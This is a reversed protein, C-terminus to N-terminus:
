TFYNKKDYFKKLNIERFIIKSVYVGTCSNIIFESNKMQRLHLETVWPPYFESPLIPVDDQGKFINLIHESVIGDGKKDAKKKPGRLTSNNLVNRVPTINNRLSKLFNM